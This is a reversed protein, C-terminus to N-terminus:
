HKYLSDKKEKGYQDGYNKQTHRKLETTCELTRNWNWGHHEHHDHHEDQVWVKEWVPKWVQLNEIKGILKEFKWKLWGDTIM